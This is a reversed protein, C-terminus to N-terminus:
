DCTSLSSPLSGRVQMLALLNVESLDGIVGQMTRNLACRDSRAVSPPIRCLICHAPVIIRVELDEPDTIAQIGDSRWRVACDAFEAWLCLGRMCGDAWGDAASEARLMRAMAADWGVSSSVQSSTSPSADPLFDAAVVRDWLRLVTEPGFVAAFGSRM